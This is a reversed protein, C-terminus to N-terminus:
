NSGCQLGWCQRYQKSVSALMRWETTRASGRIATACAGINDCVLLVPRKPDLISVALLGFIAGAHEMEFIGLTEVFWQPLHPTCVHRGGDYVVDSLHGAGFANTYLVVPKTHRYYIRRPIPDGLRAVRWPIVDALEASLTAKGSLSAYQRATLPALLARGFRGFFLSQAWGLGGRLKAVQAPSPTGRQLVYRLDHILCGADRKPLPAEIFKESIGVRAGSPAIADAPPSGKDKAIPLNRLDNLVNLAEYVSQIATNPEAIYCDGAYVELHVKAVALLVRQIFGTMRPWSAPSSRSGYPPVRSQCVALAGEPPAVLISAFEWRYRIIPINKYASEYDIVAAQIGVKPATLNYYTDVALLMDLNDPINTDQTSLLANIGSARFDDILRTEKACM